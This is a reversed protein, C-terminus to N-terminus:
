RGVTIGYLMSTAPLLCATVAVGLESNKWTAGVIVGVLLSVFLMVVVALWMTARATDISILLVVSCAEHQGKRGQEFCGYTELINTASSLIEPCYFARTLITDIRRDEVFVTCPYQQAESAHSSLQAFTLVPLQSSQFCLYVASLQARELRFLGLHYALRLM